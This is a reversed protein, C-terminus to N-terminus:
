MSLSYSFELFNPVSEKAYHKDNIFVRNELSHTDSISVIKIYGEVNEKKSEIPKKM